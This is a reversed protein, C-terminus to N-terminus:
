GGEKRWREEEGVRKKEDGDKGKIKRGGRINKREKRGGREEIGEVKKGEM